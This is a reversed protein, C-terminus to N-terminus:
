QFLKLILQSNQNAVSLAQVGLQQQTQLANLRTSAENMDADVLSGVGTTLSDSLNSTYTTQLSLNSSAAGLVEQASNLASLATGVQSTYAAIQSASAGVLSIQSVSLLAGNYIQSAASNANVNTKATTDATQASTLATTAAAAIGAVSTATGTTTSQNASAGYLAGLTGAATSDTAYNLTTSATGNDTSVPTTSTSSAKSITLTGGTGVLTAALSGAQINSIVGGSTETAGNGFLAIFQSSSTNQLQQSTAATVASTLANVAASNAASAVSLNSQATTNNNTAVALAQDANIAADVLSNTGKVYSVGGLNTEGTAISLLNVQTNAGSGTVGSVFSVSTPNSGDLLNVGNFSATEVSTGLQQRLTNISTQLANLDNGPQAASVLDKQISQLVTYVNNTAATATSLVSAGLNLSSSVASLNSVNTRLGQAISFYAANDSASGIALGTSIENQTQALANQTATLNQVATMAAMNTLISSM